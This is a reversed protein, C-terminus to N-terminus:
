EDEGGKYEDYKFINSMSPHHVSLDELSAVLRSRLAEEAQARDLAAAVDARRRALERVEERTLPNPRNKVAVAAQM